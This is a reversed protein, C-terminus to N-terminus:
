QKQSKRITDDIMSKLRELSMDHPISLRTAIKLIFKENLKDREILENHEVVASRKADELMKPVSALKMNLQEVHIELEALKKMADSLDIELQAIKKNHDTSMLADIQAHPTCMSTADCLICNKQESCNKADSLKTKLEVLQDILKRYSEILVSDLSEVM